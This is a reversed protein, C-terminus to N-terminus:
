VVGFKGWVAANCSDCGPYGVKSLAVIAWVAEVRKYLRILKCANVCFAVLAGIRHGKACFRNMDTRM